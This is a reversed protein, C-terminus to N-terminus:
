GSTKSRRLVDSSRSAAASPVSIGVNPRAAAHRITPTRPKLGASSAQARSPRGRGLPAVRKEFFSEEARVLAPLTVLALLALTGPRM